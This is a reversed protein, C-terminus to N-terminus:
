QVAQTLGARDKQDEAKRRLEGELRRCIVCNYRHDSMNENIQFIEKTANSLELLTHERNQVEDRRRHADILQKVFSDMKSCHIMPM